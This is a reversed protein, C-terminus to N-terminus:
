PAVGPGGAHPPAGLGRRPHGGQRHGAASGLRGAGLAVYFQAMKLPTQSNPGQGIALSLTEGETPAYGFTRRWFDRSEPFVGQSEQPLDIGCRRSFGVDTARGILRDLGIRVGLQYFYVDCSNGIAEALNNYGHGAPDWCRFYRNGFFWGGRCPDPMTEEPTIVGLDLAIGASALKWTSAPAYLGQVPRNFLPRRDDEMLGRWLAEDIGGVFDNPDYTPASYLALVGGDAPDMVVVAGSMSDPFISHIYEQLEFDINLYLDEGAEGPDTRVGSFDGVIRGRADFEVYKWGQRGQLRSEYQKEMGLKGVTMGRDYEGTLYEPSALEEATIEGVYGLVHAAAPGLVYRRRPRMEVYIGPFLSRREEIVSVAGFDADPDVVVERGYRGLTTLVREIREDSLDM